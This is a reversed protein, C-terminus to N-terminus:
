KIWIKPHKNKDLLNLLDLMDKENIAICGLTYNKNSTCHIFIASGRGIGTIKKGNKNYEINILYKYSDYKILNESTKFDKEKIQKVYQYDTKINETTVLNNYYKSNVDDVWHYSEKIKLYPYKIKLDEKGLAIGLNYKGKPTKKAGEYIRKSAGNKGILINNIKKVLKKEDYIKMTKQKTNVIILQKM